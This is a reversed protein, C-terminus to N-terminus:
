IMKGLQLELGKNTNNTFLVYKMIMCPALYMYTM